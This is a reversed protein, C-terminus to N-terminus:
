APNKNKRYVDRSLAYKKYRGWFEGGEQFCIGAVSCLQIVKYVRYTMEDTKRKGPFYSLERKELIAFVPSFNMEQNKQVLVRFDWWRQQLRCGEKRVVAWFITNLIRLYISEVGM